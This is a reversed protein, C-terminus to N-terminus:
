RATNRRPKLGPASAEGLQQQRPDKSAGRPTPKSESDSSVRRAGPIIPRGEATVNDAKKIQIAAVKGADDALVVDAADRDGGSLRAAEVELFALDTGLVKAINIYTERSVKPDGAEARVITAKNVGVRKALVTQSMGRRRKRIARIVDGIHWDIDVAVSLTAHGDTSTFPESGLM